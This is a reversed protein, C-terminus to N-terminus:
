REIEFRELDNDLSAISLELEKIREQITKMEESKKDECIIEKDIILHQKVKSAEQEQLLEVENTEKMEAKEKGLIKKRNTKKRQNGSITQYNETANMRLLTETMEIIGDGTKDQDNVAAMEDEKEWKFIKQKEDNTDSSRLCKMEIFKERNMGVREWYQDYVPVRTVRGREEAMRYEEEIRKKLEIRRGLKSSGVM